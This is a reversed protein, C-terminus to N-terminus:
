SWYGNILPENELAGFRLSLSVSELSPSFANAVFDIDNM